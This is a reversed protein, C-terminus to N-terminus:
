VESFVMSRRHLEANLALLDAPCIIATDLTLKDNASRFIYNGAYKEIHLVEKLNIRKPVIPNKSLVDGEIIAFPYKRWLFYAMLPVLAALLFLLSDSSLRGSFLQFGLILFFPVCFILNRRLYKRSFYFKM